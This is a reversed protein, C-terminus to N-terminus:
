DLLTTIGSIDDDLAFSNDLKIGQVLVDSPPHVYFEDDGLLKLIRKTAEYISTDISTTEEFYQKSREYSGSGCLANHEIEKLKGRLAMLDVCLKHGANIRKPPPMNDNSVNLKRKTDVSTMTQNITLFNISLFMLFFATQSDLM